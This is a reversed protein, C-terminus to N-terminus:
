PTLQPSLTSSANTSKEFVSEVTSFKELGEEEMKELREQEDM